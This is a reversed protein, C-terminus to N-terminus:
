HFVIQHSMFDDYYCRQIHSDNFIGEKKVVINIIFKFKYKKNIM